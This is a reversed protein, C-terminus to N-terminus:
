LRVVVGEHPLLTVAEAFDLERQEMTTSVLVEGATFPTQVQVSKSSFNLLTVISEAGHARKYAFVDPHVADIPAYEGHSLAKCDRHLKILAKYLSLVSKPDKTETLVNHSAYEKEVPLWPEHTSFGANAEASWQMPTREPDRNVPSPDQIKEPPIEVDSMGLEDGYYIVKAGPLTLLAVAATRVGLPGVKSAIRPEDHNGLVYASFSDKPKVTEFVDITEKFQAANWESAAQMPLFNFPAAVSNDCYKYLDAYAHIISQSDDPNPHAELFIGRGDYEHCVSTLVDIYQRLYGTAGKSFISPPEEGEAVEPVILDKYEQDKAVFLIADVRFGDVGRDFWFRMVDKMAEQVEPNAWNLDPQEKL